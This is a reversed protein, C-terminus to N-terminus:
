KAYIVDFGNPAATSFLSQQVPENYHLNSFTIDTAQDLANVFSIQSVVGVDNFMIVLSKVISGQTDTSLIYRHGSHEVTFASLAESASGTLLMVPLQDVSHKDISRITVQQIETDILTVQGDNVIIKQEYPSVVDWYFKGPKALQFTGETKQLLEGSDSHTTQTFEGSLTKTALLKAILNKKASSDAAYCLSATFFLLSVIITLRKMNRFINKM